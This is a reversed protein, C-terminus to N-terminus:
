LELLEQQLKKPLGSVVLNYSHQILETLLDTSIEPSIIVTNWYKKNFHWAPVISTYQERLEIARDPDCKLAIQAQPNDL